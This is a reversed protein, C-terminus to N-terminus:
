SFLWGAVFNFVANYFAMLLSLSFITLLTIVSSNVWLDQTPWTIRKIESKTELIYDRFGPWWGGPAGGAVVPPPAAGKKSSPDGQMLEATTDAM